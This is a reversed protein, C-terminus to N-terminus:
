IQNISQKFFKITKCRQSFTVNDLDDLKFSSHGALALFSVTLSQWPSKISQRSQSFKRNGFAADFGTVTVSAWLFMLGSVAILIVIPCGFFAIALCAKGVRALRRRQVCDATDDTLESSSQSITQLWHTYGASSPFLRNILHSAQWDANWWCQVFIWRIWRIGRRWCAESSSAPM